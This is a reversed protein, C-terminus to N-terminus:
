ITPTLEQWEEEKGVSRAYQKRINDCKNPADGCTIRRQGVQYVEGYKSQPESLLEDEEGDPGFRNALEKLTIPRGLDIAYADLDLEPTSLVLEALAEEEYYGARDNDSLAYEIMEQENKTEVVTVWVDKIGLERYARLRMNGGLVINDQNILIPKYRGLKQIQQKLREFDKEKIGRPNKDWLKLQDIPLHTDMSGIYSIQM